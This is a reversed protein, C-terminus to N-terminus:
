AGHGNAEVGVPGVVAGPGEDEFVALEAGDDEGVEAGFDPGEDEFGGVPFHEPVVGADRGARGGEAGAVVVPEAAAPVLEEGVIGGDGDVAFGIRVVALEPGYGEGPVEDGGGRGLDGDAEVAGGDDSWGADLLPEGEAAVFGEEVEAIDEDVVTGDGEVEEPFEV